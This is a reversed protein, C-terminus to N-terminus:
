APPPSGGPGVVCFENEESDTMVAVTGEDYVHVEGTYGGGNDRIWRAAPPNTV